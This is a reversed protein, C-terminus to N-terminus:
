KDDAKVKKSLTPAFKINGDPGNKARILVSAGTKANVGKNKAKYDKDRKKMNSLPIQILLDTNQKQFDYRGEVFMTVATSQIEMRNIYVDHPNIDLKDTLEAFRINSMDRDKLFLVKVQELGKHNVIAGNKLSFNLYGNMGGTTVSGSRKNLSMTINGDATLSGRLNEATIGDQGFNNFARFLQQVNVQQLQINTAATAQSSNNKRLSGSVKIFGGAHQMSINEIQWSDQRFLLSARVNRAYFAGKSLTDAIVNLRFNM